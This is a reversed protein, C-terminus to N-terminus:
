NASKAGTQSPNPASAGKVAKLNAALGETKKCAEATNQLAVFTSISASEDEQSIKIEKTKFVKELIDRQNKSLEYNPKAEEDKRLQEFADVCKEAARQGGLKSAFSALLSHIQACRKASLVTCNVGGPKNGKSSRLELAV